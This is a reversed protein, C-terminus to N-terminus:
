AAIVASSISSVASGAFGEVEEFPGLLAQLDGEVIGCEKQSSCYEFEGGTASSMVEAFFAEFVFGWDVDAALGALLVKLSV